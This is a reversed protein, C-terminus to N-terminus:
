IQIKKEKKQILKLKVKPLNQGGAYKDNPNKSTVNM